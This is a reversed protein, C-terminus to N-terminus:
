GIITGGGLVSIGHRDHRRTAVIGGGDDKGFVRMCDLYRWAANLSAAEEDDGHGSWVVTEGDARKLDFQINM